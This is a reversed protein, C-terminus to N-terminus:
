IGDREYIPQNPSRHSRPDHAATHCVTFPQSHQLSVRPHQTCSPGETDRGHGCTHMENSIKSQFLEAAWPKPSLAVEASGQGVDDVFKVGM